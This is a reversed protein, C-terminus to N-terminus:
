FGTDFDKGKKWKQDKKLSKKHKEIIRLGEGQKTNFEDMKAELKIKIIKAEALDKTQNLEARLQGLEHSTKVAYQRAQEEKKTGRYIKIGLREEWPSLFAHFDTQLERLKDRHGTFDKACLRHERKTGSGYRNKYRVEKEVIPVTVVHVHPNTEDFHLSISVINEQGHKERLFDLCRDRLFTEASYNNGYAERIEDPTGVLGMVYEIAVVSNKRPKIGHARIRNNIAEQLTSGGFLQHSNDGYEQAPSDPRINEPVPLGLEEYLRANHVETYRVSAGSANLNKVRILGHAM